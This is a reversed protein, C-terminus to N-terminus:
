ETAFLELRVDVARDEGALLATWQHVDDGGLRDREPDSRRIHERFTLTARDGVCLRERGPEDIAADVHEGAARIDVQGQDIEGRGAEVSLGRLVTEVLHP